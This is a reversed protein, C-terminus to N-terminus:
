LGREQFVKKPLYEIVADESWDLCRYTRCRYHGQHLRNGDKLAVPPLRLGCRVGNYCDIIRLPDRVGCLGGQIRKTPSVARLLGYTQQALMHLPQNKPEAQTALSMIRSVNDRIQAWVDSPHQREMLEVGLRLREIEHDVMWHRVPRFIAGSYTLIDGLRIRETGGWKAMFVVRRGHRHNLRDRVVVFGHREGIRALTDRDRPDVVFLAERSCYRFLEDLVDIYHAVGIQRRVHHLVNSVLMVDFTRLFFGPRGFERHEFRCGSGRAAAIRNAIQIAPVNVDYGTVDAGAEEAKFSMYGNFCGIDCVTKGYLTCGSNWLQDWTRESGTRGAILVKGDVEVRQYNSSGSTRKIYDLLDTTM